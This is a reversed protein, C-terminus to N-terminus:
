QQKLWLLNAAKIQSIADGYSTAEKGCSLTQEPSSCAVVGPVDEHGDYANDHISVLGQNYDQFDQWSWWNFGVLPYDGNYGPTTLLYQVGNYWAQGRTAQTAFDSNPNGPNAYCSMSSDTQSSLINFTMLPIDGLYRTTYQYLSSFEAQSVQWPALTVFAGDLYPAAGEMFKSYAPVGWSGMNDLGFYPVHSVAKLDDHMTKFYKAAMQSVWNDLDTGLTSNANPVANASGAACSFYTPYNPDAGELCFPNTGVWATHSGDEDMLGTGGAMWGGHVYSLAISTGKAPATVFSITVDGTSYNIISSSQKVYNSTPSGLTGSDTTSTICGSHFWPCDGMQVTGGVSVQVSYPSVPRDEAPITFSFTTTTGDGTGIAQNTVQTGSSDFTTYDSGWAANLNAVSGKYKQWLYDRLSCPNSISCATTPNTALSKSYNQTATYLLTVSGQPTAQIYTQVPSTILTVWAMNANTHGPSGFDPGAGSGIFYDSDDTFIGLLYPSNNLMEQTSEQTSQLEKTWETNLNPDFVDFMAGGRWATYNSNAGSIEDKIPSNVYGNKNTAAYEAPKPESIYPLPVPQKGGPWACNSCTEWPIVPGGADQGVSNFGWGTMRKLTQWGWNYTADGYKAIYIPYTNVGNCDNTPNGNTVLNGVSMAVFANGAPDCFWWRNSIKEMHFYPTTQACPIDERGGYQDLNVGDVTRGSGATSVTITYGHTATKLPSSSDHVQITFSFNGTQSAAGSIEGTASTLSLGTPLTGSSVSWFYPTDGGSATLAAQYAAQQQAASLSATTISLSASQSQPSNGSGTLACGSLSFSLCLLTGIAALVGGWPRCGQRGKASGPTGIQLESFARKKTGM